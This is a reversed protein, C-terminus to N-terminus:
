RIWVLPAYTEKFRISEPGLMWELASDWIYADAIDFQLRELFRRIALLRVATSVLVLSKFQQYNSIRLTDDPVSGIHLQIIRDIVELPVSYRAM